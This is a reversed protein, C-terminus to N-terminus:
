DTRRVTNMVADLLLMTGDLGLIPREKIGVIVRGPRSVDYGGIVIGRYEASAVSGGDGIMVDAPTDFVNESVDLDNEEMFQSIEKDFSRDTGTNVAVPLLGLYDYLFTIVPYVIAGNAVVSFTHGVTPKHVTYLALLVHAVRQRQEKIRKMANSPDADLKECIRLIWDELADFGVPAGFKSEVYPVELEREYWKAIEAGFDRHIIVNLEASGSERLESVSCGAGIVTNVTVGCLGLLQKLDNISDEWNLDWISMGVFNVGKKREHRKPSLAELIKIMADQFGVGLPISPLPGEIRIVVGEEAKLSLTEGILSAGPSNIIGILSPKLTRVDEFVEDLKGRTGMIYDDSDMYTCPVRPQTFFFKKYYKFHDDTYCDKDRCPYSHESFWAPYSKCGTPGNIITAADSIGEFALAVGLIGDPRDYDSPM